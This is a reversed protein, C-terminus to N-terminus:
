RLSAHVTLETCIERKEAQPYLQFLKWQVFSSTLFPLKEQKLLSVVKTGDNLDM